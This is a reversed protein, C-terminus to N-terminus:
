SHLQAAFRGGRLLESALSMDDFSEITEDYNSEVEATERRTLGLGQGHQLFNLTKYALVLLLQFM